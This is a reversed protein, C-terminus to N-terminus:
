ALARSLTSLQSPDKQPQYANWNWNEQEQIQNAPARSRELLTASITLPRRSQNASGVGFLM